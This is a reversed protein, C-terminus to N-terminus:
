LPGRRRCSQGWWLLHRCAEECRHRSQVGPLLIPSDALGECPRAPPGCCSPALLKEGRCDASAEFALSPVACCSCAMPKECCLARAASAAVLCAPMGSLKGLQARIRGCIVLM